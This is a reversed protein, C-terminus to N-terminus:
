YRNLLKKILIASSIKKDSESIIIKNKLEQKDIQSIKKNIESIKNVSQLLSDIMSRMNDTFKNDPEKNDIQAIKKNIESIKDVSQLLSDIMSRM